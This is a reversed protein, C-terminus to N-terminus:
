EGRGEKKEEDENPPTVSVVKRLGMTDWVHYLKASLNM